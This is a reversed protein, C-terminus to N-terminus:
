LRRYKGQIVLLQTTNTNLWKGVVKVCYILGTVAVKSNM